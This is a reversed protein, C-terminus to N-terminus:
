LELPVSMIREKENLRHTTPVELLEGGGGIKQNINVSSGMKNGLLPM